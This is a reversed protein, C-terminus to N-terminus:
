PRELAFHRRAIPNLPASPATVSPGKARIHVFLHAHWARSHPASSASTSLDLGPPEPTSGSYDVPWRSLYLRGRPFVWGVIPRWLILGLFLAAVLINLLRTSASADVLAAKADPQMRSIARESLLAAIILGALAIFLHYFNLM